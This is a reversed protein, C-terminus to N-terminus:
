RSGVGAETQLWEVPLGDMTEKWAALRDALRKEGDAFGSWRQRLERDELALVLPASSLNAHLKKSVGEALERQIEAEPVNSMNFVLLVRPATPQWIELYETEGAVPVSQFDVPGVDQWHLQAWQRWRDQAAADAQLGHTLVQAPAGAGEVLSLV